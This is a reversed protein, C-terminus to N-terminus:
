KEHCSRYSRGIRSIVNESLNIVNTFRVRQLRAILDLHDLEGLVVCDTKKYCSYNFSLIATKEHGTANKYRVHVAERHERTDRLSM